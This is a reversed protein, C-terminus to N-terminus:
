CGIFRPNALSDRALPPPFLVCVFSIRATHQQQRTWKVWGRVVLAGCATGLNARASEGPAAGKVDM